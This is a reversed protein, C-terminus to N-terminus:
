FSFLLSIKSYTMGLNLSMVTDENTTDWFIINFGVDALLALEENFNYQISHGIKVGFLSMADELDEEMESDMEADGSTAILPFLFYGEFQNYSELQGKSKFPIRYGLRPMVLNISIGGESSSDEINMGMRAFDLGVFINDQYFAASHLVNEGLSQLGISVADYQAKPTSLFLLLIFIRNIFKM